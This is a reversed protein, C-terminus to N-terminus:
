RAIVSLALGEGVLITVADGPQVVSLDVKKAVKVKHPTGDPLQFTIKHKKADVSTVVVTMQQTEVVMGAASSGDPSVMVAAATTASPPASGLYVAVEETVIANVQDGVQLADFNDMDPDVKYTSKGGESSALTIKGKVADKTVVMANLKFTDVVIVGDDVTVVDTQEVGKMKNHSCASITLIVAPLLALTTLNSITKKVQETKM